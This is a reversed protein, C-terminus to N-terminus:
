SILPRKFQMKVQVLKIAREAVQITCVLNEGFKKFRVYYQEPEDVLWVFDDKKFGFHKFLKWSDHNILDTLDEKSLIEPFYPKTQVVTDSISWLKKAM